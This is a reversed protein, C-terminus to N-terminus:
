CRSSGDARSDIRPIVFNDITGNCRKAVELFKGMRELEPLSSMKLEQGISFVTYNTPQGDTGTVSRMQEWRCPLNTGDDSTPPTPNSHKAFNTWMRAMLQRMRYAPDAPPIETRLLPSSFLYYVEDIHCAGPLHQFRLLEKGKNLSGEYAFRYSYLPAKTQYENWLKCLVYYGVLFRDTLLDVLRDLNTRGIPTRGFYHQKLEEGLARAAPSFYDVDFSRCIFKEPRSNYVSLNKIMDVLELMGEKDNYGCLVPMQLRDLERLYEMPTKLLVPDASQEREIVATFPFQFIQEYERERASLVLFQAEYLRRAPVDRLTSLVGEDSTGEYGFLRALSRAREEPETQYILDAFITASQAIAKHFYPRSLDSFCHMLVNSGGSSAGFLTVNNPDGGFISVNQRIWQLALRQDKLGANGEIGAQPLCLFGLVGLRYNVTGVVVGEQVLYDPLYMGSDGNGGTMGGGHFFVMVPLRKGTPDVDRGLAPTYVNLFLGDETGTIERTIVDRGLCCSRERSCDLYSVSYREIPVPSAFRLKGIPPKAYPIGKFCYYPQGNPLRDKTGYISGQLVKVMIRASPDYEQARQGREALSKWFQIRDHMPNEVVEVQENLELARLVFPEGTATPPQAEWRFGVDDHEPTPCGFKAFNTWLRCMLTRAQDASSGAEVPVTIQSGNFLYSLEDGHAAGPTGEPVDFLKRLQNLEDEYSFRYFYLPAEPQFRSHLEAAAYVPFYFGVDGVLDLFHALGDQDIPKDQFYFQRIEEVVAPVFDRPVGFDLPLTLTLNGALEDFRQQLLGYFVLGEASTVGHILPITTINPQKLLAEGRQPIIADESSPDEISPIFPSMCYFSKETEEFAKTSNSVLEEVPANLLTELVGADDEGEYGLVAALKRARGEPQYELGWPCFVSGSQCIAKHFYQRSKPCLYHWNVSASGASEGFLTVNSPDGGFRAINDHVWRLALQQDKLGQNGHIGVSPLALFGLPGLRYNLTVLIVDHQLLYEPGFFDSNGSGTYYGGGHIWVMVPKLMGLADSPARTSYVNLYLCDEVGPMGQFVPTAALCHGREAGCQLPQEAFQELPVPPKFRLEGVPPQAYPIGQYSYYESGNPLPKRRGIIKGAVVDLEVEDAFVLPGGGNTTSSEPEVIIPVDEAPPQYAAAPPMFNPDVVPLLPNTKPVTPPVYLKRIVMTIPLQSRVTEDIALTALNFSELTRRELPTWTVAGDELRPVGSKAFSTWLCCMAKRLQWASSDQPVADTNFYSSSFLYCVDDAHSAGRYEVPVKWLQRFKNLETEAGFHYFFIDSESYSLHLEAAQVTPILYMTDTFIRSLEFEKELAVEKTGCYFQLICDAVETRADAPVNLLDPIFRCKDDKYRELYQRFTNIKYLAEENLVGLIMPKSPGSSHRLLDFANETVIPDISDTSEIVPRFAYVSDLTKEYATLAEKQAKALLEPAVNMLTELVQSDSAGEACGFYEALRRTKEEPQKQFTISTTAVGSQCIIKHFLDCSAASLCHLHASVGGASEGFLTVNNADGGFWEINTKVWRLALRQDKLGM